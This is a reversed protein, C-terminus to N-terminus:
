SMPIYSSTPPKPLLREPHTYISMEHNRVFGIITIGLQEALTIGMTTPAANSILLPIGMRAAKVIVEASLRGSFVIIKDTRVIHNILTYGYIKDLANHRGADCRVALLQDQVALGAAHLGGSHQQHSYQTLSHFLQTIQDVTLEYPLIPLSIPEVDADDALYFGPRGRGCCGSLYRKGFQNLREPNLHPIRVWIQGEEEHHQFVHIEAPDKIFGESALFGTVLEHIHTPTIVMTVFENGNIFLTVAEEIVVEAPEQQWQGATYHYRPVIHIADDFENSQIQAM